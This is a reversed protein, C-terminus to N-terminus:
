YTRVASPWTRAIEEFKKQMEQEEEQLVQRIEESKQEVMNRHDVQLFEGALQVNTVLELGFNNTNHINFHGKESATEVFM